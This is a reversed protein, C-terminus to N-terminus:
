ENSSGKKPVVVVDVGAVRPMRDLDVVIPELPINLAEQITYKPRGDKDRKNLKNQVHVGLTHVANDFQYCVWSNDLRLLESPLKGFSQAKNFLVWM